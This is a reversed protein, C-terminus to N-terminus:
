TSTRSCTDWRGAACRALDAPRMPGLDVGEVLVQGTTPADLGGAITLLSSKGSGSPGMVAVLEGAAVQLSVGRLAHVETAGSGHMRGVHRLELVPASMPVGRDQAIPRGRRALRGRAASGSPGDGRHRALRSECHDLWRIEAEAQFVLSDLVLLWAIDGPEDARLKLRTYDRMTRMTATRQTRM